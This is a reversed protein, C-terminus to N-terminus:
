SGDIVVQKVSVTSSKEGDLSVDELALISIYPDGRVLLTQRSTRNPAQAFVYTEHKRCFRIRSNWYCILFRHFVDKEISAVIELVQPEM